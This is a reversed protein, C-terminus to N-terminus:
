LDKIAEKVSNIGTDYCNSSVPTIDGPGTSQLTITGANNRSHAKLIVWARRYADTLANSICGPFRVARPKYGSENFRIRPSQTITGDANVAGASELVSNRPGGRLFNTM